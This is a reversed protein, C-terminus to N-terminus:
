ILVIDVNMVSVFLIIRIRCGCLIHLLVWQTIRISQEYHYHNKLSVKWIVSVAFYM